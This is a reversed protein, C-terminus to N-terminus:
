KEKKTSSTISSAISSDDNLNLKGMEENLTSLSSSIDSKSSTEM